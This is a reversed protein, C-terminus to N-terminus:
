DWELFKEAWSTAEQEEETLEDNGIEKSLSLISHAISGLEREHLFASEPHSLYKDREKIFKALTEHHVM